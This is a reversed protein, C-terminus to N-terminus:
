PLSVPWWSPVIVCMLIASVLNRTMLYTQPSPYWREDSLPLLIVEDSCRDEVDADTRPGCGYLGSRAEACKCFSSSSSRPTMDWVATGYLCYGLAALMMVWLHYDPNRLVGRLFVKGSTRPSSSVSDMSDRVADHAAVAHPSVSCARMTVGQSRTLVLTM